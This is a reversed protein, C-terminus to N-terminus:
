SMKKAPCVKYSAMNRLGNAIATISFHLIPGDLCDFRAFAKDLMDYVQELNPSSSNNYFTIDGNFM